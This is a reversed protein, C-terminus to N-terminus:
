SLMYATSASKGDGSKINIYGGLTLIIRIHFSAEHKVGDNQVYLYDHNLNGYGDIARGYFAWYNDNIYIYSRSSLWYAVIKGNPKKAQM